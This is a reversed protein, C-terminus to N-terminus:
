GMEEEARYGAKLQELYQRHATWYDKKGQNMAADEARMWERDADTLGKGDFLVELELFYQYQKLPQVVINQRKGLQVNRAIYREYSERSKREIEQIEAQIEEPTRERIREKEQARQEQKVKDLKAAARGVRSYDLLAPVPSTLERYLEKIEKMESRKRECAEAAAEKDGMPVRHNEAECIPDLDLTFIMARSMDAPDYRVHVQQNNYQYMASHHFKEGMISVEGKTVKRTTRYLLMLDVTKEDVVVPKWNKSTAYCSLYEDYPTCNMKYGKHIRVENWYKVAELVKRMFEQLTLLQGEATMRALEAKRQRSNEGLDGPTKVRGPVHFEDQMMQEFHRFLNEIPKAKANYPRAFIRDTIGLDALIGEWEGLGHAHIGAADFNTKRELFLKAREPKGNDTYLHTPKGYRMLGPRLALAMMQSDYKRGLAWGYILRTRMDLWFYGQPRIATKRVDDWVWFDFIHQDGVIYECPHVHDYSRWTSSCANDLGQNGGDRYRKLREDLARAIAYATTRGGIQWGQAAAHKVAEAYLKKISYSRHERKLLMGEFWKLAEPDWSRVHLRSVKKSTSLGCLGADQFKKVWRYLTARHKGTERVLRAVVASKQGPRAALIEEVVRQKLVAEKDDLARATARLFPNVTARDAEAAQATEYRAVAQQVDQPLDALYYANGGGRRRRRHSPWAERRARKQVARESVGLAEGITKAIYDHNMM